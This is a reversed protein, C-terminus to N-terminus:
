RQWVKRMHLLMVATSKCTQAWSLGPLKGAVPKPQKREKSGATVAPQQESNKDQEDQPEVGHQQQQPTADKEQQKSKRKKSATSDAAKAAKTAKVAAGRCTWLFLVLLV